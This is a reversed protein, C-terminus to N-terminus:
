TKSDEEEEGCGVDIERARNGSNAISVRRGTQEFLVRLAGSVLDNDEVILVHKVHEGERIRSQSTSDAAPELRARSGSRDAM